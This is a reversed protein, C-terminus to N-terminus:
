PFVLYHIIGLLLSLHPPSLFLYAPATLTIYSPPHSGYPTPISLNIPPQVSSLLSPLLASSSLAVSRRLSLFLSLHFTQDLSYCRPHVFPPFPLSPPYGSFALNSMTCSAFFCRYSSSQYGSM